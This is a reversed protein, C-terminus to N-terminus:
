GAIHRAHRPSSSAASGRAGSLVGSAVSSNVADTLVPPVSSYLATPSSALFRKRYATMAAIGLGAASQPSCTTEALMRPRWSRHPRSSGAARAPHDTGEMRCRGVGYRGHASGAVPPD